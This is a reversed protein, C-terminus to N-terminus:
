GSEGDVPLKRHPSCWGTILDMMDMVADEDAERDDSRLRQRKDEFVALITERNYGQSSLRTALDWLQDVPQASRLAQEFCDDLPDIQGSM